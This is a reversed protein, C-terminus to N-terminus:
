YFFFKPFFTKIKRQFNKFFGSVELEFGSPIPSASSSANITFTVSSTDPNRIKLQYYRDTNIDYTVLPPVNNIFDIPEPTGSRRWSFLIAEGNTSPPANVSLSAPLSTPYAINLNLDLQFSQNTLSVQWPATNYIINKGVLNYFSNNPLSGSVSLTLPNAGEKNIKYAAAEIGSEAAYYALESLGTARSVQGQRILTESLMLGAALISGLILVVLVLSVAPQSKNINM